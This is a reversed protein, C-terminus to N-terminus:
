ASKRQCPLVNIVLREFSLIPGTVSANHLTRQLAELESRHQAAQDELKKSIHEKLIETVLSNVLDDIQSDVAKEV